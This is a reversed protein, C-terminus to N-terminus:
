FPIGGYRVTKPKHRQRSLEKSSKDEVYQDFMIKNKEALSADYTEADEKSYALHKMWMILHLHHHEDIELCDNEDKIRPYPLRYIHMRCIDATVPVKYWRIQKDTLELIGYDVVETDTDDLLSPFQIGYNWDRNITDLDAEQIFTVKTQATILQGSRIRLIYPSFATFPENPTLVVDTLDRTSYDAIGGTGRVFMDQADIVWRLVEIDSFLYPTSEDGVQSRFLEILENITM